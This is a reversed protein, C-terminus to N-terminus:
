EDPIIGTKYSINYILSLPYALSVACNKLVKGHIGDPGQAKNTDLKLLLNRVDRHSFSLDVGHDDHFNIPIDYNSADSFQDSFFKNFLDTQDKVNNRFHSKYSVVEPIRSTNSKSKVYSWFKKSVLSPDDDNDDIINSRM